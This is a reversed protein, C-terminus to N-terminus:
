ACKFKCNETTTTSCADGVDGKISVPALIRTENDEALACRFCLCEEKTKWTGGSKADMLVCTGKEDGSCGYLQDVAVTTPKLAFYLGVALGGVALPLGVGLGIALKTSKTLPAM